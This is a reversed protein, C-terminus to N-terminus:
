PLRVEPLGAPEVASGESWPQVLAASRAHGVLSWAGSAEAKTEFRAQVVGGIQPDWRAAGLVTTTVIAPVAGTEAHQEKVIGSMTFALGGQDAEAKYTLRANATSTAWRRGIWPTQTPEWELGAAPPVKPLEWELAAALQRTLSGEIDQGIQRQADPRFVMDSRHYTLELVANSAKTWFESRDGVVDWAKLRGRPTWSFEIEGPAPLLITVAKDPQDTVIVTWRTGDVFRCREVSPTTPACALVATWQELLTIKWDTGWVHSRPDFLFLDVQVTRPGRVSGEAPAAVAAAALALWSGVM